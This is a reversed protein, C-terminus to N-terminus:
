PNGGPNKPFAQKTGQAPTVNRNVYELIAQIAKGVRPHEKHIQELEPINLLQPKATAM